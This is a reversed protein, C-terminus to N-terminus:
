RLYKPMALKTTFAALINYSVIDSYFIRTNGIDIIVVPYQDDPLGHMRLKNTMTNNNTIYDTYFWKEYIEAINDTDYYWLLKINHLIKAWMVHNCHPCSIGMLGFIRFRM